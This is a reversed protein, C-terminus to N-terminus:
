KVSKVNMKAIAEIEDIIKLGDETSKTSPINKQLKEELMAIIKEKDQITKELSSVYRPSIFENETETETENSYLLQGQKIGYAKPASLDKNIFDDITIEFHACIRQITEIKPLAKKNVYNGILGKNLNFIAGFDDQLLRTKHLFYSINISIFNKM